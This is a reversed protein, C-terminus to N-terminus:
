FAIFRRSSPPDGAGDDSEAHSRTGFDLEIAVESGAYERAFEALKDRDNELRQEAVIEGDETM